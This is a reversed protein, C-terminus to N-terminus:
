LIRVGFLYTGKAANKRAIYQQLAEYAYYQFFEGFDLTNSHDVDYTKMVKSRLPDISKRGLMRAVEDPTLVGNNDLDYSKFSAEAVKFWMSVFEGYDIIGDDNEDTNEATVSARINEDVYVVKSMTHLFDDFEKVTIKNDNNEDFETYLQRLFKEAKPLAHGAVEVEDMRLIELFEGFDISQNRDRDFVSYYYTVLDYVEKQKRRYKDSNLFFKRLEKKSINGDGSTDIARFISWAELETLKCGAIKILKDDDKKEVGFMDSLTDRFTYATAFIGASVAMGGLFSMPSPSKGITPPPGQSLKRSANIMARQRAVGRSVARCAVRTWFAM